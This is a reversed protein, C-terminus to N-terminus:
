TDVINHHASIAERQCLYFVGRNHLCLIIIISCGLALQGELLFLHQEHKALLLVTPQKDLLRVTAPNAVDGPIIDLDNRIM